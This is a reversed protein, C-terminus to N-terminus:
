ISAIGRKITDALFDIGSIAKNRVSEPLQSKIRAMSIQALIVCEVQPAIRCVAAAVERDHGEADGANILEFAGQCLHVFLQPHRGLDACAQNFTDSTAQRTTPNTMVVGIADYAAVAREFMIRDIKLLPIGIDGAVYDIVPSLSSCTCLMMDMGAEQCNLAIRRMVNVVAPKIGGSRALLGLLSEDVIHYFEYDGTLALAARKVPDVVVSTSHLFAIRKTAM